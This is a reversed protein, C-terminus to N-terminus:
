RGSRRATGCRAQRRPSRMPKSRAGMSRSAVCGSPSSATCSSQAHFSSM